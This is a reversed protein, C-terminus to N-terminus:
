AWFDSMTVGGCGIIRAAEYLAPKTYLRIHLPQRQMPPLTGRIPASPLPRM